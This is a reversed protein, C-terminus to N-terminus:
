MGSIDEGPPIADALDFEVHCVGEAYTSRRQPPLKQMLRLVPTNTALVDAV